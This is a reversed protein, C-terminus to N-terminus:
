HFQKPLILLYPRTSPQIDRSTPKSTEFAWTMQLQSERSGAQPDINLSEAVVEAEHRGAAVSGL